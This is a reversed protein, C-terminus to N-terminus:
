RVMGKVGQELGVSEEVVEMQNATNIRVKSTYNGGIVPETLGLYRSLRSGAIELRPQM